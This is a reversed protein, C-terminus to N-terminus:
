ITSMGLQKRRRVVQDKELKLLVIISKKLGGERKRGSKSEGEVREKM